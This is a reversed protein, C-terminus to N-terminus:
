RVMAAQHIRMSPERPMHIRMGGDKTGLVTTDRILEEELQPIKQCSALRRLAALCADFTENAELDRSFLRNTQLLGGTKILVKAKKKQSQYTAIHKCSKREFKEQYHPWELEKM